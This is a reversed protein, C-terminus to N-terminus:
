QCNLLGALSDILVLEEDHVFWCDVLDFVDDAVDGFVIIRKQM